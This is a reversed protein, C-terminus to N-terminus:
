PDIAESVSISLTYIKGPQQQWQAQDDNDLKMTCKPHDVVVATTAAIEQRLPPVFSIVYTGAGANRTVGTVMKLESGLGIYDGAALWYGTAGGTPADTVSVTTNGVAATASATITGGSTWSARSTWNYPYHYGPPSLTFRGARGRLGALFARLQNAEAGVKNNFTLTGKWADGPLALTQETGDLESRASSTNAKLGWTSANPTIDPFPVSM